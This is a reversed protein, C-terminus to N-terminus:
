QAILIRDFPDRHHDPLGDLALVHATTIPLFPIGSESYSQVINHLSEKVATMTTIDITKTLM